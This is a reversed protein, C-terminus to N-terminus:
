FSPGLQAALRQLLKSGGNPLQGVPGSNSQGLVV